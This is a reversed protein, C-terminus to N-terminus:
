KTPIRNRKVDLVTKVAEMFTKPSLVEGAQTQKMISPEGNTFIVPTREPDSFTVIPEDIVVRGYMGYYPAYTVGDPNQKLFFLRHDGLAPLGNGANREDKHKQIGLSRGILSNGAILTGDDLIVKEVVIEYDVFPINPDVPHEESYHYPQAERFQGKEDYGQFKGEQLVQEIKGVVILDANDVLQNLTRPAPIDFSATHQMSPPAALRFTSSKHAAWYGGSIGSISAALLLAYCVWYENQLKM